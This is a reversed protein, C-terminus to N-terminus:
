NRLAPDRQHTIARRHRKASALNCLRQRWLESTPADQEVGAIVADSVLDVGDCLPITAMVTLARTAYLQPETGCSASRLFERATERGLGQREVARHRNGEILQGSQEQRGICM